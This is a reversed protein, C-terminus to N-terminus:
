VTSFPDPDTVDLELLVHEPNRHILVHKVLSNNAIESTPTPASGGRFCPTLDATPAALRPTL